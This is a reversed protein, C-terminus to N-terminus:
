ERLVREAEVRWKRASAEDGSIVALEGLNEYSRAALEPTKMNRARVLCEQFVERAQRLQGAKLLQIGDAERLAWAAVLVFFRNRRSLSGWPLSALGEPLPYLPELINSGDRYLAEPDPPQRIGLADAM